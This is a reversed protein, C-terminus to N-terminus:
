LGWFDGEEWRGKTCKMEIFFLWHSLGARLLIQIPKSRDICDNIRAILELPIVLIHVLIELILGAMYSLKVVLKLRIQIKLLLSTKFLIPQSLMGLKPM